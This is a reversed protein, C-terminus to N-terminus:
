RNNQLFCVKRIFEFLEICSSNLLNYKGNTEQLVRLVCGYVDHHSLNQLYFEDNM